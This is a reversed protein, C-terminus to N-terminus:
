EKKERLFDNPLTKMISRYAQRLGALVGLIVGVIMLGPTEWGLYKQLGFGAAAGALVCAVMMFGLQGLLTFTRLSNQPTKITM